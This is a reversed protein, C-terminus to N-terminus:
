QRGVVSTAIVVNILKIKDGQPATLAAHLDRISQVYFGRVGMPLMSELQDYRINPTLATPPIPPLTSTPHKLHSAWITEYKDAEIGSYIGSNNMVIITINHLKYRIATELEAMSFGFASDGAVYLVPDTPNLIAAAIAYPMGIGMTAFYGADLRRRPLYSPLMVRAIDMTNSGESVLITHPRLYGKVVNYVSYYTLPSGAALHAKIKEGLRTYNTGKHQELWSLWELNTSNERERLDCLTSLTEAVCHEILTVRLSKNEARLDEVPLMWSSRAGLIILLDCGKLASTRAANACLPHEDSITGKAMPMTIFPLSYQEVFSRCVGEAGEYAAGVGIVALPCRAQSLAQSIEDILSPDLVAAKSLSPSITAVDELNRGLLRESFQVISPLSEAGMAKEITQAVEMPTSESNITYITAYDGILSAYHLEQFLTESGAETFGDQPTPVLALMPWRNMNANIIGALGHVFGPGAVTLLIGKSHRGSIFAHASAAYSAAQENRFAVFAVGLKQLELALRTIPIGVVGYVIKVGCRHLCNALFQTGDMYDLPVLPLVRCSAEHENAGQNSSGTPPPVEGAVIVM